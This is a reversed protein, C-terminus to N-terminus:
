WDSKYYPPIPKPLHTDGPALTTQTDTALLLGVPAMFPRQPAQGSSHPLSFLKTPPQNLDLSLSKGQEGYRVLPMRYRPIRQLCSQGFLSLFQLRSDASCLIPSINALSDRVSASSESSGGRSSIFSLITANSFNSLFSYYGV